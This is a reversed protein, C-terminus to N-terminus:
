REIRGALIEAIDMVQIREGVGQSRISDDFMLLCYPCATAVVDAGTSMAEALRVNSIRTEANTELWMQGGGGGCCFGNERRRKMERTKVGADKLLSRPEDMVGNYRGLYCSDHFTITQGDGGAMAPLGIENLYQTYHLVEFDGGFQPYENKLTSFCHACQTVIRNFKYEGLTEINQEALVQFMYENGLRRVTEGCCSEANGLIAFDVNAAKLLDFFAKGAKKSRDDYSFACGVFVLVDVEEGPNLIRVGLEDAWAERDAAPLGWPNNQREINRLALGASQPISGTMLAQNRRVEIVDAVPNIFLPCRDLCAGCTTCHWVYDDGLVEGLQRLDAGNKAAVLDDVMAGRLTQILERPSFPNGAATSPCVEECRGCRVCADLSLLQYPTLENIVGAGLIEAEEINEIPTLAAKKGRMRLVINLPGIILHRLKTFPISAVFVVGGIMHAWYFWYHLDWAIESNMGLGRFLQAAVNGAPSWRAWAPDAGVIRIGESTFGLLPIILLLAIAYWDDWRTELAKPRLVLRRFLAMLAGALIALGALDMVLEFGLYANNVPFLDGLEVFPIFLQIQMLSIATGILQITMGWFILAHMIGAYLKSLVRVQVVAHVFFDRIGLLIAKGNIQPAKQVDAPMTGTTM